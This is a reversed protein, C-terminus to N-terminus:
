MPRGISVGTRVDLGTLRVPLIRNVCDDSAGLVKVRMYNSALGVCCNGDDVFSEVLVRVTEGVFREKFRRASAEGVKILHRARASITKPPVPPGMEAAKTGPRPSFRFVHIKTFGVNEVVECTREFQEHTEGPFGVMLDTTIGIDPIKERIEEITQIFFASSYNRGMKRLIGDDGSQLPLHLHHCFKKSDAILNLMEESVENTEI